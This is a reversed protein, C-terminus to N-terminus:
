YMRRVNHISLGVQHVNNVRVRGGWQGAIENAQGAAHVVTGQNDVIIGIHCIYGFGTFTVVDGAQAESLSISQGYSSYGSATTRGIKVGAQNYAWYVLGSCDFTNPGTAGWTYPLGKRTLAASAIAKGIESDGTVTVNGGIETRASRAALDALASDIKKANETSAEYESQQQSLLNGQEELLALYQKQLEEQAQKQQELNAKATNVTKKQEEVQKKDEVIGAVLEKDYATLENVSEMRSFMDSFNSAGFIFEVYTNNNIYSQMAYMREKVENERVDIKEQLATISKDLYAIESEKEAIDNQLTNIQEGISEINNKTDDLQQETNKMQGKLDKNKEKLYSNFEKCVSEDSKSLTSSACIEMYKDEQGAFDTAKVSSITVLLSTALCASLLGIVTKKM